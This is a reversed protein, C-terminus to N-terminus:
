FGECYEEAYYIGGLITEKKGYYFTFKERRHLFPFAM